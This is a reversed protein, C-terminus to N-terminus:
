VLFYKCTVLRRGAPFSPRYDVAIRLVILLTSALQTVAGGLLMMQAVTRELVTSALPFTKPVSNPLFLRQGRLFM